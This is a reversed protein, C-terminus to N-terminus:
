LDHEVLLTSRSSSEFVFDDRELSNQGTVAAARCWLGRFRVASAPGTDSHPARQRPHIGFWGDHVRGYLHRQKSLTHYLRGDTDAPVGCDSEGGSGDFWSQRDDHRYQEPGRADALLGSEGDNGAPLARIHRQLCLRRAHQLFPRTAEPEQHLRQSLVGEPFLTRAGRDHSMTKADHGCRTGNVDADPWRVDTCAIDM